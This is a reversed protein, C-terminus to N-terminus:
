SPSATVLSTGHPDSAGVMDARLRMPALQFIRPDMAKLRPSIAPHFDMHALIDRELDMGPALEILEPGEASLAFVCRETVYL